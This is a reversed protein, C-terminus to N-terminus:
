LCHIGTIEQVAKISLRGRLLERVWGAARRTIRTGPYKFPVEETFCARC